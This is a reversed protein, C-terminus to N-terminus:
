KRTQRFIAILLWATATLFQMASTYYLKLTLFTISFTYLVLATPLSTLLPVKANRNLLTPILSIIFVITGTGVVIDQWIM